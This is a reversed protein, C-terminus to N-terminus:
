PVVPAPSTKLSNLDPKAPNSRLGLLADQGQMAYYPSQYSWLVDTSSNYLGLFGIEGVLLWQEVNHMMMPAKGDAMKPAIELVLTVQGLPPLRRRIAVAEVATLPIERYLDVGNPIVAIIQDGVTYPFYVENDPPLDLKLVHIAPDGPNVPPRKLLEVKIATRVVVATKEINLSLFEQSLRATERSLYQPQDKAPLGKYHTTATIWDEFSPQGGVLKYFIMGVDFARSPRSHNDQPLGKSGSALALSSGLLLFLCLTVFLKKM